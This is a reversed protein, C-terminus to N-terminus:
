GKYGGLLFEKAGIDENWSVEVKAGAPECGSAILCNIL